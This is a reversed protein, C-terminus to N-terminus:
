NTGYKERLNELVKWGDLLEAGSKISEEAEKLKEIICDDSIVQPMVEFPICKNDAVKAFFINIAQEATLGAEKFIKDAKAKLETNIQKENLKKANNGNM